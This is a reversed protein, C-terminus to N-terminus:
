RGKKFLHLNERRYELVHFIAQPNHPEAVIIQTMGTITHTVVSKSSSIRLFVDRDDDEEVTFIGIRHMDEM